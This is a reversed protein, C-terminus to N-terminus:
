WRERLLAVVLALVSQPLHFLGLGYVPLALLSLVLGITTLVVPVQRLWPSRGLAAIAALATLTMLPLAFWLLSYDGGDTLGKFVGLSAHLVALVLLLACAIRPSLGRRSGM